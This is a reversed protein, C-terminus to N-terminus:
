FPWYTGGTPLKIFGLAGNLAADMEIAVTQSIISGTQPNVNIGTFEKVRGWKLDYFEESNVFCRWWYSQGKVLGNGYINSECTIQLQWDIPGPKRGTRGATDSNVYSQNAAMISLAANTMATFTTWTDGDDSSYQFICGNSSEPNSVASSFETEDATLRTLGLHGSFGVSHSIINGSAWDWNINISDVIVDGGYTLGVGSPAFDDDTGALGLFPFIETPLVTPTAGHGNYSGAWSTTGQKRGMGAGTGSNRYQALTGNDSIQWDAVADIGNIKGYRGGHIPM